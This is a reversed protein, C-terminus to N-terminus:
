SQQTAIAAHKEVIQRLYEGILRALNDRSSSFFENALTVQLRRTTIDAITDNIFDVKAVGPLPKIHERLWDEEGPQLLARTGFLRFHVALPDHERVRDVGLTDPLEYCQKIQVEVLRQVRDFPYNVGCAVFNYSGEELVVRSADLLTELQRALNRGRPSTHRFDTKIRFEGNKLDLVEIRM